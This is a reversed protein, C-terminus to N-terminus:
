AAAKEVIASNIAVMARSRIINDVTGINVKGAELVLGRFYYTTPNTGPSDNLEVKFAYEELAASTEDRATELAAQGTDDPDLGFDITITGADKSGKFKRVRADALATFDIQKIADGFEGINEIEGVETYSLADYAAETTAVSNSPGIYFKCGSASQVSM